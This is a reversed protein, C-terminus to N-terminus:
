PERQLVLFDVQQLVDVEQAKREQEIFTYQYNSHLRVNNNKKSVQVFAQQDKIQDLLLFFSDRSIRFYLLFEKDNYNLSDYSLADEIDFKNRKKQYRSKCFLYRRKMMKELISLNHIYKDDEESDEEELVEHWIRDQQLMSVRYHMQKLTDHRRSRCVM